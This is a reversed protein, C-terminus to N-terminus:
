FPNSWRFAQSDSVYGEKNLSDVFENWSERKAIVDDKWKPQQKVFVKWNYRFQSLAEAKTVTRMQKNRKYSYLIARIGPNWLPTQAVKDVPM